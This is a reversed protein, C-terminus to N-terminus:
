DQDLKILRQLRLLQNRLKWFRSSKMVAINEEAQKLSTKLQKQQTAIERRFQEFSIQLQQYQAQHQELQNQLKQYQFQSQELQEQLHQYQAQHQEWVLQSQQLEIQTSQLKDKIVKISGIVGPSLYNLHELVSGHYDIFDALQQDTFFNRWTGVQGERVFQITPDSDKFREFSESQRKELSQMNAFDSSEVAKDLRDQEVPIDAFKLFRSLEYAPNAKMDEYRILLIEKRANNMWSSVHSSWSVFDGMTENNFSLLFDEFKTEKNVYGFKIAYFYYSVAVDRGDRVIYVVKKYKSTFSEHSKIIRPRQLQQIQEPNYYIDPVIQYLNEFNCQNDTLYNGILFSLWTNGSRPYSVLFVDDPFVDFELSCPKNKEESM